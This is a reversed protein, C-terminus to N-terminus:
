KHVKSVKNLRKLLIDYYLFIVIDTMHRYIFCIKLREVLLDYNVSQM